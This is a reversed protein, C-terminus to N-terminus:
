WLLRLSGPLLPLRSLLLPCWLLPCWLRLLSGSLLALSGTLLLL